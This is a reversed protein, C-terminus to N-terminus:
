NFGGISKLEIKEDKKIEIIEFGFFDKSEFDVSTSSYSKNGLSEIDKDSIGIPKKYNYIEVFVYKGKFYVNYDAGSPKVFKITVNGPTGASVTILESIQQSVAEANAKSFFYIFINIADILTKAIFISIIIIGFTIIFFEIPESPKEESM